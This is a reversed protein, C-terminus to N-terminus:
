EYSPTLDGTTEIRKGGFDYVVKAGMERLTSAAPAQRRARRLGWSYVGLVVAALGVMLALTRLRFRLM